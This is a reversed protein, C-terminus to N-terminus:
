VKSFTLRYAPKGNIVAGLDEVRKGGVALSGRDIFDDDNPWPDDEWLEVIPGSIIQNITATSGAGMGGSSWVTRGDANIYPEDNDGFGDSPRYCTITELKYLGGEVVAAQEPTLDTFLQEHQNDKM